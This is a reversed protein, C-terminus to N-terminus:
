ARKSMKSAVHILLGRSKEDMRSLLRAFTRIERDQEPRVAASRIATAPINPKKVNADDTFLRYM